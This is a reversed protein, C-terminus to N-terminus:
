LMPARVPEVAERAIEPAAKEAEIFEKRLHAWCRARTIRNRTVVGNYDGYANAVLVQDYGQLFRLPGDRSRDLTFDFVDYPQTADGVYVWMCVRATKEKRLMPLITDHTAVVHSIRVREILDAVDGCWISQIARSIEFGQRAFVEELQYLPVYEAYKSTAIYAMLGPGALGKDIV